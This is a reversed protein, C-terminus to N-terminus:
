FKDIQKVKLIVYKELDLDIEAFNRAMKKDICHYDLKKIEDSTNRRERYYVIYDKVKNEKRDARSINRSVM